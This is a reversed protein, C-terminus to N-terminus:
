LEGFSNKLDRAQALRHQSLNIYWSAVHAKTVPPPLRRIVSGLGYFERHLAQVQRELETPTCYAPRIYCRKGPWRGVEDPHLVRGAQIMREYFTTGKEPTVINFYAAPVKQECLFTLTSRFVEPTEGDWGFIFNLSYSIGRRRLDALIAPYDEVRNHRKNMSKLTDGDISEMGINIHLLGSRQALDMFAADKCLAMTWLTSWRIKLPILAEMLAMAQERDGAFTSAAFLINRSRCHKVEAVIEDVPRCRYGEGLYLRESCFECHFPCGRSTQVAFTKFVGYRRLDLLDYRPLPLGALRDMPEARSVPDLRGRAADALMQPWITEGEGVGVADGHAAAEEPFFYAHAGGLIVPRGRARFAAAVDYGRVSNATLLTLAVVDAPEDFDVDEVLEDVLKVEWGPPTLAALYALTLPVLQRRRVKVVERFTESPYSPQIILLKHPM